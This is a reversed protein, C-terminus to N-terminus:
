RFDSELAFFFRDLTVRQHVGVTSSQHSWFDIYYWKEDGLDSQHGDLLEPSARNYSFCICYLFKVLSTMNLGQNLKNVIAFMMMKILNALGRYSYLEIHFTLKSSM